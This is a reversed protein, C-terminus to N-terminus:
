IAEPGRTLIGWIFSIFALVLLAYIIGGASYAFEGIAWGIVLIVAIIYLISRM